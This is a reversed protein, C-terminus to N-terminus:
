VRREGNIRAVLERYSDLTTKRNTSGIMEDIYDLYSYKGDSKIKAKSKTKNKNYYSGHPSLSMIRANKEKIRESYTKTDSKSKTSKDKSVAVGASPDPKKYETPETDTQSKDSNDQIKPSVDGWEGTQNAKYLDTMTGKESQEEASEEDDYLVINTYDDLKHKPVPVSGSSIIDGFLDDLEAYDYKTNINTLEWGNQSIENEANIMDQVNYCKTKGKNGDQTKYSYTRYTVMEDARSDGMDVLTRFEEQYMGKAAEYIEEYSYGQKAAMNYNNIVVEADDGQRYSAYVQSIYSFPNSKGTYEKSTLELLVAKEDVPIDFSSLQKICNEKSKDEGLSAKYKLYPILGVVEAAQQWKLKEGELQYDSVKTKAYADCYSYIDSLIDVKVDVDFDNFDADNEFTEVFEDELAKRIKNAEKEQKPTLKVNDDARETKSAENKLFPVLGVVNIASQWKTHKDSLEYDSVKSKALAAAYSYIDKIIKAKVDDSINKYDEDNIFISIYENATDFKISNAKAAEKRTLTKTKGDIDVQTILTENLVGKEGTADYLRKLEKEASTSFLNEIRTDITKGTAIKVIDNSYQWLSNAINEINQTSLGIFPSLAVLMNYSSESIIKAKEKENLYNFKGGFIDQSVTYMKKSANVFGEITEVFPVDPGWEFVDAVTGSAFFIKDLGGTISDLMIRKIVSLVAIKEEEDEYRATKHLIIAAAFSLASFMVSSYALARATKRLERAATKKKQMYADSTKDMDSNIVALYRGIRDYLLGSEQLPQSTFKLFLREAINKNKLFEPRHAVDYVQQTENIVREYVEAVKPFYEKSKPDIKLTDKVYYKTAEWGLAAIYSDAATIWNVPSFKGMKDSTRKLLGNSNSLDGMEQSSMGQRRMYHLPTYQDIEAAVDGLSFSKSLAKILAKEGLVAGMTPYAAFQKLPISTNFNFIGSTWKSVLRDIVDYKATRAVQLDKVVNEIVERDKVSWAEGIAGRLSDYDSIASLGGQSDFTAESFTYNYVKNFNRLPIALASYAAAFTSHKSVADSLGYICLPQRANPITSKLSGAGELTADLRLGEIDSGTYNKNVYMPVYNEATAKKIGILQLSTKNIENKAYVNFLMRAKDIFSKSYDDLKSYLNNINNQTLATVTIGNEYIGKTYDGKQIDKFNALTIGGNSIHARGQPREWLMVINSIENRTLSISKGDKDKLETEIKETVFRKYDKKSQKDVPEFPKLFQMKLFESQLEGYILDDMVSKLVSNDDYGTFMDIMREANLFTRGYSRFAKIIPNKSAPRERTEDIAKSALTRTEVRKNESIQYKCEILTHKIEKLVNYLDQLEAVSMQHINKKNIIMSLKLIKDALQPDFASKIDYDSSNKIDSYQAYLKDLKFNANTEKVSGDTNLTYLNVSKCVETMTDMLEYPIHKTETPNTLQSSFYNMLNRIKVRALTKERRERIKSREEKRLQKANEERKIYKDKLANLKKDSKEKLERERDAIKKKYRETVASVAESREQRLKEYQRQAITASKKNVGSVSLALYETIYYTTEAMENQYPNYSIPKLYDLADAIDMLQDVPNNIENPDFIGPFMESLEMYAVDVYTADEASSLTIKGFFSKRFDNYDPIDKKLREPLKLKTGKLYAKLYEYDDSVETIEANKIVDSAISQLNLMFAENVADIKAQKKGAKKLETFYTSYAAEVRRCLDKIKLSTPVNEMLGDVIKRVDATNVSVDKTLRSQYRANELNKRLAKNNKLIKHYEQKTRRVADILEDRGNEGADLLEIAGEETLPIDKEYMEGQVTEDASVSIEEQRNSATDLEWPMELQETDDVSYKTGRENKRKSLNGISKGNDRGYQDNRNGFYLGNDRYSESEWADNFDFINDYREGSRYSGLIRYIDKSNTSSDDILRRINRIDDESGVIPISGFIKWDTKSDNRWAYFNNGIEKCGYKALKKARNNTSMIYEKLQMYEDYPIDELDFEGDVSYRIDVNNRDFTGINDTASKIQTSDLVAYTTGEDNNEIIGDYGMKKVIESIAVGQAENSSIGRDYKIESQLESLKDGVEDYLKAILNARSSVVLPNKINLYAEIVKGKGKHAYIESKERSESFYYAVGLNNLGRKTVKNRDFVTFDAMTGHYVVKPTGDENIVKSAPKPQFNADSQKVFEFLDAVSYGDATSFSQALSSTSGKASLQQNKKSSINQLQYSRKITGDTNVDRLEEVYLKVLEIGNGMDALAYMSHMMASNESKTKESPVTYSDLLISNKVIGDIYDLYPRANVNNAQQHMKTENFVKGSVQIDWGTDTNKHVGRTAGKETVVVIKSTDYARWDGFWARFFPSKTGIEKFYRRAFSETKQIDESTFDNVSRKGISQIATIDDATIDEDVSFKVADLTNIADIRAEDDGAPYTIVEKVGSAELKAKVDANISDPVVAAIVEDFGVSRMPKAEFYETPIAAADKYLQQMRKAVDERIYYGNEKFHNQIDSISDKKVAAGLMVEGILDKEVYIKKQIPTNNKMVNEIVDDIRDSLESEINEYEELSLRELMDKDARVSDIDTYEKAAVSRLGSVTAANAKEGREEQTEKMLRVINELTYEYHVEDFGRREGTETYVDKGNYVGPKGIVGELKEHIWNEVAKRDVSQELIDHTAIRNIDGASQGGARYFEWADKIFDELAFPTVNNEIYSDIRKKKTEPKRDLFVRHTREYEDRIIDIIDNRISNVPNEGKGLEYQVLEFNLRAVNQGGVKDVFKKLAKNGFKKNFVKDSVVPEINEGKEALYAARVTDNDALREALEERNLLSDPEIGIQRLPSSHHFIGKATKKSLESLEREVNRVKDFDVEYSMVPVTPTWADGGYIKNASNVKPDISDSGFVLSVDGFETHGEEAKVIAISPAPLGGLELTKKLSSEDLNHVAVLDRVYEVPEDLSFSIKESADGRGEQNIGTGRSRKRSSNRSGKNTKNNGYVVRIPISTGKQVLHRVIQMYEERTESRGQIAAYIVSEKLYEIEDQSLKTKDFVLLETIDPNVFNGDTFILKNETEFIYDGDATQPFWMGRKLEATDNYFKGWEDQTLEDRSVSYKVKGGDVSEAYTASSEDLSFKVKGTDNEQNESISTNVIDKDQSLINDASTSVNVSTVSKNAATDTEVETKVIEHLYFKNSMDGQPYSKVIVGLLSDKGNLKGYGAISYTDYGRDKWNDAYDIVIGNEIVDKIAAVARIKDISVGHFVTSKAGKRNLEVSGIQKNLAFNGITKFYNYIKESLNKGGQISVVDKSVDFIEGNNVIKSANSHIKEIFQDTEGQIEDGDFNLSFRNGGGDISKTYTSATYINDAIESGNWFDNVLNGFKNNFRTNMGSLINAVLEEVLTEKRGYGEVNRYNRNIRKLERDLEAKTLSNEIVNRVKRVKETNYEGHITEHRNIVEASFVPHDYQVIITKSSEIYAGRAKATEGPITIGEACFLTSFGKSKNEEAIRRMDERYMDRSIIEASIGKEFTRSRTKGQKRVEETYRRTEETRGSRKEVAGTTVDTSEGFGRGRHGDDSLNREKGNRDDENREYNKTAEFISNKVVPNNQTITTKDSIIDTPSDVTNNEAATEANDRKNDFVFTESDAVSNHKFRVDYETRKIIGSEVARQLINEGDFQSIKMMQNYLATNGGNIQTNEYATNYLTTLMFREFSDSVRKISDNMPINNTSGSLVVSVFEDAVTDISAEIGNKRLAKAMNSYIVSNSDMAAKAWLKAYENVTEATINTDRSTTLQANIRLIEPTIKANSFNGLGTGLMMDSIGNLYRMVSDRQSIGIDSHIAAEISKVEDNTFSHNEKLFRRYSNYSNESNINSIATELVSSKDRALEAVASKIDRYFNKAGGGPKIENGTLTRLESLGDSVTIKRADENTIGEGFLVKFVADSLNTDSIGIDVNSGESELAEFAARSKAVSIIDDADAQGSLIKNVETYDTKNVAEPVARINEETNESLNNAELNLSYLKGWKYPSISKGEALKSVIDSALKRTKENGRFYADAIVGNEAGKQIIKRGVLNNNVTGGLKNIVYASGGHFGTMAIGIRFGAAGSALMQKKEEVTYDTHMPIFSRDFLELIKIGKETNNLVESAIKKNTISVGDQLYEELGEGLADFGLGAIKLAKEAGRKSLGMKVLGNIGKKGFYTKVAGEAKGIGGLTVIDLFADGGEILSNIFGENSALAKADSYSLGADTLEKMAQGSMQIYGERSTGAIYGAKIGNLAGAGGGLISGLAGGGMMYPLATKLQDLEQPLQGAMDKTFLEVINVREKEIVDKNNKYFKNATEDMKRAAALADSDGTSLYKHWMENKNINIWSNTWTAGFQSDYEKSDNKKSYEYAEAVNKVGEIKQNTDWTEDNLNFVTLGKLYNYMEAKNASTENNIGSDHLYKSYDEYNRQLITNNDFDDKTLAFQSNQANSIRHKSNMVDVIETYIKGLDAAKKKLSELEKGEKVSTTRSLKDSYLKDVQEIQEKVKKLAYEEYSNHSKDGASEWDAKSAFYVGSGSLEGGFYALRAIYKEREENNRIKEFYDKNNGYYRGNNEAIDNLWDYYKSQSRFHATLTNKAQSDPLNDELWEATYRSSFAAEKAADRQNKIEKPSKWKIGKDGEIDSFDVNYKSESANKKVSILAGEIEKTINQGDTNNRAKNTLNDLGTKRNFKYRQYEDESKRSKRGEIYSLYPNDNDAPLTVAFNDVSKKSSKAEDTNIATNWLNKSDDKKEASRPNQKVETNENPNNNFKEEVSKVINEASYAEWSKVTKDKEAQKLTIRAM